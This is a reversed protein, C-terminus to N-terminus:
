WLLFLWNYLHGITKTIETRSPLRINSVLNLKDKKPLDETIPYGFIPSTLKKAAIQLEPLGLFISFHTRCLGSFNSMVGRILFVMKAAAQMQIFCYLSITLPGTKHKQKTSYVRQGRLPAMLQTQNHRM